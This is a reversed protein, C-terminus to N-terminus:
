WDAKELLMRVELRRLIRLIRKLAETEKKGRELDSLYTRNLGVGEALEAQTLGAEERYHRIAAGLAAPTFVRFERSEKPQASTEM